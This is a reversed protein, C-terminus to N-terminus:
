SPKPIQWGQEDVVAFEVEGASDIAVSKLAMEFAWCNGRDEIDIVRYSADRVSSGAATCYIRSDGWHLERNHHLHGHFILLPPHRELVSQLEGADTLAKRWKTM